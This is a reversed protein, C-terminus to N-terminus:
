ATATVPLLTNDPKDQICQLQQRAANVTNSLLMAVTMPGVGGPVPTIYGAVNATTAFDVDGILQYGHKATTSSVRNVGVDIVVAGPKVMDGTITNPQGAAVILIDAESSHKALVNTKTHCLTVTANGWKTNSGLLPVLSMGVLRSRGVVTVQAGSTKIGTAQLLHVIGLPTAPVFRPRGELLLGGNEPHLGDVDKLPSITQLIVNKNIHKPLPLQVLIGNVTPVSNFKSINKLLEGQSTEAPMNVVTANINAKAAVRRKATVYSLSAPNDGVVLIVLGPPRELKASEAAIKTVLGQALAKGDIIKAPM